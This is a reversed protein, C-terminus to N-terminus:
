EGTFFKRLKNNKIDFDDGMFMFLFFLVTCINVIPIFGFLAVMYVKFWAIPKVCGKRMFICFLICLIISVVYLVIFGASSVDIERHYYGYYDVHRPIVINEM